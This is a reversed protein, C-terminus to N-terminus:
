YATVKLIGTMLAEHTYKAHSFRCSRFARAVSETITLKMKYEQEVKLKILKLIQLLCSTGQFYEFPGFHTPYTDVVFFHCLHVFYQGAVSTGHGCKVIGVARM